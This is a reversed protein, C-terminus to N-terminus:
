RVAGRAILRRALDVVARRRQDLAAALDRRQELRAILAAIEHPAQLATVRLGEAPAACVVVGPHDGPERPLHALAPEDLARRPVKALLALVRMVVVIFGPHEGRAIRLPSRRRYRRRRMMPAVM